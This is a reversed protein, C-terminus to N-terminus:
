AAIDCIPDPERDQEALKGPDGTGKLSRKFQAKRRVNRATPDTCLVSAPLSCMM